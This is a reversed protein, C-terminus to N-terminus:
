LRGLGSFAIEDFDFDSAMTEGSGVSSIRTNDFAVQLKSLLSM